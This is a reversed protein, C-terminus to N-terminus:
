STIKSYSSIMLDDIDGSFGLSTNQYNFNVESDSLARNWIKVEDIDGAFYRGEIYSSTLPSYGNCKGISALEVGQYNFILPIEKYDVRRGDVYLAFYDSHSDIVFAINYWSGPKLLKTPYILFVSSPNDLVGVKLEADIIALEFGATQDGEAIITQSILPNDFKVWLSYTNHGYYSYGYDPSDINIYDDIGDLSVANDIKGSVSTIGASLSATNGSLVTNEGTLDDMKWYAIMDKELDERFELSNSNFVSFANGMGDIKIWETQLNDLLVGDVSISINSNITNM